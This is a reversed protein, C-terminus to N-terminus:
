RPKKRPPEWNGASRKTRNTDQQPNHTTHKGHTSTQAIVRRNPCGSMCEHTQKNTQAGKNAHGKTASNNKWNNQKNRKQPTTASGMHKNPAHETQQIENLHPEAKRKRESRFGSRPKATNGNSRNNHNTMARSPALTPRLAPMFSFVIQLGDCTTPTCAYNHAAHTQHIEQLQENKLDNAHCSCM